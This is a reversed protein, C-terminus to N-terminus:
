RRSSTTITSVIEGDPPECRGFPRTDHGRVQLYEGRDERDREQRDDDAEHTPAPQAGLVREQPEADPTIRVNVSTGPSISDSADSAPMAYAGATSKRPAVMSSSNKDTCKEQSSDRSSSRVRVSASSSASLLERSASSSCCSRIGAGSATCPRPAHGCTARADRADATRAAVHHRASRQEPQDASGNCQRHEGNGGHRRRNPSRGAQGCPQQLAIGYTITDKNADVARPCSAADSQMREHRPERRDRDAADQCRRTPPGDVADPRDVRRGPDDPEGNAAEQQGRSQCGAGFTSTSGVLPDAQDGNGLVACAVEGDVVGHPVCSAQGVALSRALERRLPGVRRRKVQEGGLQAGREGVGM